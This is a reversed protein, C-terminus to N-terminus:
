LQFCSFNEKAEEQFGSIILHSFHRHPGIKTILPSPVPCPLTLSSSAATVFSSSCSCLTQPWSWASGVRTQACLAAATPAPAGQSLSTVLLSPESGALSSLPWRFGIPLVFGFQQKNILSRFASNQVFFRFHKQEAFNLKFILYQHVDVQLLCTSFHKIELPFFDQWAIISRILIKRIWFQFRCLIHLQQGLLLSSWDPYFFFTLHGRVEPKM